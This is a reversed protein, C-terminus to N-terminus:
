RNPGWILSVFQGFGIAAGPRLERVATALVHAASHRLVALAQRVEDDTPRGATEFM